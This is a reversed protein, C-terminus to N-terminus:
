FQQDDSVVPISHVCKAPLLAISCLSVRLCVLFSILTKQCSLLPKLELVIWSKPFPFLLLPINGRLFRKRKRIETYFSDRQIPKKPCILGQPNNFTLDQKCIYIYTPIYIYVYKKEDYLTHFGTRYGLRMLRWSPHYCLKPLELRSCIYIYTPIYIYWDM